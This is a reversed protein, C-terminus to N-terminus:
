SAPLSAVSQSSKGRRNRARPRRRNPSTESPLKKVKGSRNANGEALLNGTVTLRRKLLREIDKLYTREGRDCFSIAIGDAGARATRGIRHIYSEPENPLEYNIVHTIGDVDIGRAAIDTAVLVRSDGDRFRKLARQRAGQSKNGHIADAAIGQKSLRDAVRNARHKTRAFVLVRALAPEVLISSLLAGKSDSEVHYIRQEIREIPTAQPTVEIRVPDSLIDGSLREVEQPMTASFLLSQRQRPLTAVIKRVDRIFGMDLMRDAEDLVVCKVEDLRLHKQRMLDLLRGPTAVVIDIGRDLASIQPRQSVGGYIVAHRLHLHRGYGRFEENIQMALERTPALVLASPSRGFISGSHKSLQQLIPLAFAATKGTGTQAIGLVDRGALLEPIARAQIPTPVFYNKAILAHQIPEALGLESFSNINM